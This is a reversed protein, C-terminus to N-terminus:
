YKNATPHEVIGRGGEHTTPLFATIPRVVNEGKARVILYALLLLLLLLLLAGVASGMVGKLILASTQGRKLGRLRV